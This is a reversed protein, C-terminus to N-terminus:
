ALITEFAIEKCDRMYLDPWRNQSYGTVHLGNTQALLEMKCRKCTGISAMPALKLSLYIHNKDGVYYPEPGGQITVTGGMGSSVAKGGRITACSNGAFANGGRITIYFSSAM